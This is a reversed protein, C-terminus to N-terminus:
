KTRREVRASAKKSSRRKSSKKSRKSSKRKCQGHSLKEGKPCKKAKPKVPAPKTSQPAVLFNGSGSAAETALPGSTAVPPPAERCSDSSSCAEPSSIEGGPCPAANSCVHADYLDLASDDDSKTLQSSTLFFVDDGDSSADVFASEEGSEGSSMLGVCGAELSCRGVHNPEFEYVDMTGNSDAPVLSVASDFFLRGENSLYRSQYYANVLTSRTWGPLTGALSHDTWTLSRDVLLGPFGGSHLIGAPREGTAACTVCTLSEAARHYLFVEQDRIGSHADVNDFGTLPRDSMFSFWEGNDSVRDTVAGLDRGSEGGGYDGVDQAAIQAVLQIEGTATNEVYLNCLHLPADESGAGHEKCSGPASDSTLAGRAVFYVYNGGESAGPIANIVGAPEGQEGAPTLDKLLCSMHGNSIGIECMYLDPQEVRAAAGRTLKQSDTFFVKNGSPTADEFVAEPAGGRAGSQQEDIQLTEGSATDRVFLHNEAEFFARGGNESVAGRVVDNGKGLASSVHAESTARGDPLVSVLKLQGDSWEFLNSETGAALGPVLAAPSALIIHSADKSAGEFQMVGLLQGPQPEEGGFHTGGPVNGSYVLPLFEGDSERRYLTRESASASLPAKGEPSVIGASLDESFYLYQAPTGVRLGVVEENPADIDETAWGSPLRRAFEQSVAVSRNGAPAETIPARAIYTIASGNAAAEILGGEDSIGELAVGHKDPPSVQEWARGDLLVRPETDSTTFVRDPGADIGLANEAVLRYHYTTLPLLHEVIVGVAEDSTWAGTEGGGAPLVGGYEVSTGYEFRYSTAIGHPNLSSVLRASTATVQEVSETGISVAPLTTFTADTGITTESAANTVVFRFHYTTEPKLGQIAATVRQAEFPEGVASSKVETQAGYAATLGYEVQYSTAEPGEPNVLASATASTTGVEAGEDEIIPGHPPVPVIKVFGAPHLVYMANLNPNFAIGGGGFSEATGEGVSLTQQGEPAFALIRSSQVDYVLLENAPGMALDLERDGGSDRPSGSEAPTCVGPCFEFKHVGNDNNIPSGFTVYINKSADVALTLVSGTESPLTMEGEFTGSASLEQVRERDGVFVSGSSDVTIAGELEEFEGRSHGPVGAKCTDGSEATCVNREAPTAGAEDDKTENVEGGFTALFTGNPAFQEIRNNRPDEIYVDGHALGLSNDVAVGKPNEGFGGPVVGSLGAECVAECTEFAEHDDAVGEGWALRFVGSETWSEARENDTDAVFVNGSQQDVAIGAPRSMEGSGEGPSGFQAPTAGAPATVALFATLALISALHNHRM